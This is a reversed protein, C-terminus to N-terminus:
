VQGGPLDLAAAWCMRGSVTEMLLGEDVLGATGVVKGVKMPGGQVAVEMEKRGVRDECGGDRSGQRWRAGCDKRCVAPLPTRNM